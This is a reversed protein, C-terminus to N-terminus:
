YVPTIKQKIIVRTKLITVLNSVKRQFFFLLKIKLIDKIVKTLMDRNGIHKLEKKEHFLIWGLLRLQLRHKKKVKQANVM